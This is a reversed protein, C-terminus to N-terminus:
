HFMYMVHIVFLCHFSNSCHLYCVTGLHSGPASSVSSGRTHGKVVKSKVEEEDEKETEGILLVPLCSKHIIDPTSDSGTVRETVDSVIPITGNPPTAESSVVGGESPAPPSTLSM